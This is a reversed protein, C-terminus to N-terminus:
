PQVIEAKVRVTITNPLTNALVTVQKEQIGSKGESNFMVRIYGERGPPIPEKPFDPVTCGCSGSASQIILDGGGRNVFRFSYSVKEGAKIIGFDHLEKDFVMKPLRGTKNQGDASIPLEVSDADLNPSDSESRCATILFIGTLCALCAMGYSARLMLNKFSM